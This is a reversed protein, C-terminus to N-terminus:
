ALKQRLQMAVSTFNPTPFLLRATPLRVRGLSDFSLSFAIPFHVKYSSSLMLIASWRCRVVAWLFQLGFHSDLILRTMSKHTDAHCFNALCLSAGCITINTIVSSFQRLTSACAEWKTLPNGMPRMCIRSTNKNSIREGFLHLHLRRKPHCHWITKTEM